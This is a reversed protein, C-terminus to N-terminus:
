PIKKSIYIISSSGIIKSIKQRLPFSLKKRLFDNGWYITDSTEINVIEFNSSKFEDEWRCKRFYFIETIVNGKEGHKTPILKSILSKNKTKKSISELDNESIKRVIFTLIGIYWFLSTLVRWTSSPLVHIMIGDGNLVRHCDKLLKNLNHAHELVHCSIICDYAESESPINQGDYMKIDNSRFSYSSGDVELGTINPYTKKIEELIYGTGSGLELIKDSFGINNAKLAKIIRVLEINRVSHLWEIDKQLQNM